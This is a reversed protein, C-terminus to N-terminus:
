EENVEPKYTNYNKFHSNALFTLVLSSITVRLVWSFAAGEIGYEHVFFWLYTLYLPLEILHLKATIDPRGMAQLFTFSPQGLSHILVGIALLQMIRFSNIAFEPGIWITLGTKGFFVIILIIPFLLLFIYKISKLYLNGSQNKDQVLSTSLAPFMVGMISTPVIWLKTVVEYPTAYYAVATVSVLSGILFRDLYLMVPAIINSITMWGGFSLLPILYKIDIKFTSGKFLRTCFFLHIVWTIVRGTVLLLVIYFLNNSFSLIALPALYTYLGMPILICNVIRFQQYAELIGKLGSTTIIFPLALAMIKVSNLAEDRLNAPMKIIDTIILPAFLYLILGGIFGLMAMSLLATGAIVPIEKEKKSGLKEAVIKVLARGLGLDFLGFYGIVMWILTLVGFRDVGLGNILLPISFIAVIMPLGQGVLNWLSNRILVSKLAKNILASNLIV